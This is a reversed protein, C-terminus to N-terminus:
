VCVCVERSQKKMTRRTTATYCLSGLPRGVQAEKESEREREGENWKGREKNEREREGERKQKLKQMPMREHCM